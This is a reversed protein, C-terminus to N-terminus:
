AGRSASRARWWAHMAPVGRVVLWVPRWAYALALGVPGRRALPSWTRMFAAPPFTKGLAFRLRAGLGPARVLWDIGLSLAPPTTARLATEVTRPAELGIEERVVRGAPLLDLGAALAGEAGLLRGLSVAEEWQAHTAVELARSLDQLPQPERRGHQAAHLAILLLRADVRPVEVDAGGIRVTETREGLVSWLEPPSVGIGVLTTHLDVAPGGSARAWTSAHRPRDAAGIGTAARAFGIEGLADEARAVAAPDVLVDVDVSARAAESGYLWRVLAPGKLLVSRVGAARMTEAVEAGLAEVVLNVGFSVVTHEDPGTM